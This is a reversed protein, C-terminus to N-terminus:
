EFRPLTVIASTGEGEVPILRLRGLNNRVAQRAISLGFGSGGPKTSFFPSFLQEMDGVELPVGTNFIEVVLSHPPAGELGSLIRIYPDSGALAELSNELLHGFLAKMDEADALVNSAAPELNIEMRPRPYKGSAFLGGLVEDFLTELPLKGLGPEREFVEMYTKIDRVLRECKTSQASIFEYVAYAPDKNDAHRMLRNINGGIITVPNRIRDAIGKIIEIDCRTTSEVYADTEVLLCFDILKDVLRLVGVAIDPPLEALVVEQCFQRVVSFGMNSFRKDLKIEVHKMGVRWLYGMFERDLGSSFLSEFWHAWVQMLYGTRHEHEIIIRAEPIGAFYDYFYRAFRDGHSAFFEKLPDLERLETDNIGLRERFTYLKDYPVKM